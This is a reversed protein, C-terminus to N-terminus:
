SKRTYVIINGVLIRLYVGMEYDKDITRPQLRNIFMM